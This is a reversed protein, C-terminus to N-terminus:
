APGLISFLDLLAHYCLKLSLEVNCGSARWYLDMEQLLFM